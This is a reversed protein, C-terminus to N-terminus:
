NIQKAFLTAIYYNTTFQIRHIRSPLTLTVDIRSTLYDPLYDDIEQMHMRLYQLIHMFAELSITSGDLERLMGHLSKLIADPIHECEMSLVFKM